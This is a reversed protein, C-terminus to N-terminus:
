LELCYQNEEMRTAESITQLQFPKITQMTIHATANRWILKNINEM